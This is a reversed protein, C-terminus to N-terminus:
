MLSTAAEPRLTFGSCGPRAPSGAARAYGRRPSVAVLHFPLEVGVHGMVDIRLPNQRQPFRNGGIDARAPSEVDRRLPDHHERAALRRDTEALLDVAIGTVLDDVRARTEGDVLGEGPVETELGHRQVQILALAERECTVFERREDRWARLQDDQIERGIRGAAHGRTRLELRNGLHDQGPRRLVHADIGILNVLVDQEISADVVGEMAETGPIASRVIM